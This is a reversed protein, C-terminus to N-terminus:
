VHVVQAAGRTVFTAAQGDKVGWVGFFLSAAGTWGNGAGGSPPGPM